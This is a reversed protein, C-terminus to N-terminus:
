PLLPKHLKEVALTELAQVLMDVHAVAHCAGMGLRVFEGRSDAIIFHKRLGSVLEAAEAASRTPLSLTLSQRAAAEHALRGHEEGESSLQTCRQDRIGQGEAGACGKACGKAEFTFLTGMARSSLRQYLREHLSMTYDHIDAVTVNNAQWSRM